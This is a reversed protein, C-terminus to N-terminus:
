TLTDGDDDEFAASVDVSSAGDALRLSLAALTGVPEPSRNAGVTVAFTRSLDDTKGDSATVTVTVTGAAVASVTVTSASVAATAVTEDSSSVTFVLADGDRDLFGHAVDVELSGDALRLSKDHLTGAAEPAYNWPMGDIAMEGTGVPDLWDLFRGSPLDAGRGLWDNALRSGWGGNGCGPSSGSHVAVVRGDPGFYPAGSSGAEAGGGTWSWAVVMRGGQGHSHLGNAFAISKVHAGPHHVLVSSSPPAPDRNWGAFFLDHAPSVEDDLLLIAGDGSCWGSACRRNRAVLTAGSQSHAPRRRVSRAGCTLSEYNWYVVVSPAQAAVICHAATMFYPKRDRATNNVLVGSCSAHGSHYMLGVSRVQDRWPDAATCAVDTQCSSHRPSRVVAPFLDRFGRNVSTLELELEEERGAPVAVEIVADGGSVVPTWLQGHAKNDADTFPGVSEGGDAPYARLSGGPPMRYRTFGFNLSVAGPSTVRLRWVAFRGDSTVEWAGRGAPTVDVAFPEAFPVPGGGPAAEIRSASRVVAPTALVPIEGLPRLGELAPMDRGAPQGHLGAAALGLATGLAWAALAVRGGGRM